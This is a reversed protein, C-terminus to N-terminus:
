SKPRTFEYLIEVLGGMDRAQALRDQPIKINLEELVGIVVDARDLSNAGLESMSRGIQVEAPPIHPLITLLHKKVLAFLEARPGDLAPKPAAGNTLQQAAADVSISGAEVGDLLADLADGPKEAAKPKAGGGVSGLVLDTLSVITSHEYLMTAKLKLAYQSNIAQMFEVGLISDLGLENFPRDRRLASKDVFLVNALLESLTDEVDQRSPGVPTSVIAGAAAAIQTTPRSPAAAPASTESPSPGKRLPRLTLKVM